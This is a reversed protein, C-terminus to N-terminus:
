RDANYGGIIESFVKSFLRMAKGRHSIENKEENSLEAFSKNMEPVFFLPDYGFGNEGRPEALISGECAGRICFAKNDGTIGHYTGTMDFENPIIVNKASEPFVCSVVCVFRASRTPANTLKQLLKQNNADDTAGDGSYRASYVGPEGGLADVCLGSDDAIGIYGLKAPVSAKILSNEEFTTGYEDIDQSVGIDDLSLVNISDVAYASLLEKLERIKKQNKSSLVIDM